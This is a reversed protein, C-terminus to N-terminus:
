IASPGPAVAFLFGRTVAQEPAGAVRMGEGVLFERDLRLGLSSASSLLETRNIFWGPYETLYGRKYPRQVVVFSPNEIVIPVRTVYVYRRAARALSAFCKQWDHIYQLSGSAM